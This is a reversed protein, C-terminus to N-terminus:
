KKRPTGAMSADAALAEAFRARVLNPMPPDLGLLSGLWFRYGSMGQENPDLSKYLAMAADRWPEPMPAAVGDGVHALGDLLIDRPTM